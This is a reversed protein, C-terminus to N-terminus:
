IDVRIKEGVQVGLKQAANGSPIAVELLGASGMLLIPKQSKSEGYTKVYGSIRHNGLKAGSVKHNEITGKCINTILNGFHDTYIVSGHIHKKSTVASKVNLRVYKKVVSGLSNFVSGKKALNAAVPSFIDRGHFTHSIKKLMYKRNTVERITFAKEEQLVYDLVGNDPALFYASPTKVCIIKRQTGVTPDIVVMHVTGKPFYRYAQAIVLAGEVINQPAIKHSLDIVTTKPSSGFIVGKMIGVYPDSLGFDTTLTICSM